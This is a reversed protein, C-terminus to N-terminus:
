NRTAVKPNRFVATQIEADVYIQGHTTSLPSTQELIGPPAIFIKSARNDSYAKLNQVNIAGCYRYM